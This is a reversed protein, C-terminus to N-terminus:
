AEAARQVVTPHLCARHVLMKTLCLQVRPTLETLHAALKCLASIVLSLLRANAVDGPAM